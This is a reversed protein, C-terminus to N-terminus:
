CKVEKEGWFPFAIGEQGMMCVLRVILFIAHRHPARTQVIHGVGQDPSNGSLESQVQHVLHTPVFSFYGLPPYPEKKDLASRLSTTVCGGAGLGTPAGTHPAAPCPRPHTGCGTCDCTVMSIICIAHRLSANRRSRRTGQHTMPLCGGFLRLRQHPPLWNDYLVSAENEM